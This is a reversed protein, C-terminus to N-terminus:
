NPIERTEVIWRPDFDKFRYQVGGGHQIENNILDFQPKAKGHLFEVCEGKPIKAVTVHTRDGWKTLLAVKNMVEEVTLLKNAQSAPMVWALSRGENLSLSSHYQVVVLDHSLTGCFEKPTTIFESMAEKYTASYDCRCVIPEAASAKPILRSKAVRTTTKALSYFGKATALTGSLVGATTIDVALRQTDKMYATTLKIPLNHDRSLRKAGMENLVDLEASVKTITQSLSTSHYAAKAKQAVYNVASAASREAAQREEETADECGAAIVTHYGVKVVSAVVKSVLESGTALVRATAMNERLKERNHAEIISAMDFKPGSTAPPKFAAHRELSASAIRDSLSDVLKTKKQMVVSVTTPPLRMIQATASQSGIRQMVALQGDTYNKYHHLMESANQQMQQMSSANSSALAQIGQERAPVSKLCQSAVNFVKQIEKKYPERRSEPLANAHALWKDREKIPDLPAETTAAATPSTINTSM